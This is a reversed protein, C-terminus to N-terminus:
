KDKKEKSKMYQLIKKLWKDESYDPNPQLRKHRNKWDEETEYMDARYHGM